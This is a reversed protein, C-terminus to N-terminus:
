AIKRVERESKESLLVFEGGGEGRGSGYASLGQGGRRKKGGIFQSV